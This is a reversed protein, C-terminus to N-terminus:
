VIKGTQKAIHASYAAMLQQTVEGPTGAGICQKDVQVVPLINATTSTIFMESLHPLDDLLIPEEEVPIGARQALKVVINRTIGGLIHATTPHTILAGDKRVAFLNSHSCETIVGLEDALLAERAGAEVAEQKALVNPLLSISKIDRRLWRIDEVVTLKVGQGLDQVSPKKLPLVCMTLAPPVNARMPFPHNRAAVGRTVQIYLCGDRRGNREVLERMVWQLSRLSMPLAIDLQKLSYALRKVHLQEDLLTQNYFVVVEYVGDAFQYGRDDIAVQAHAHPVYRGNVYSIKTM